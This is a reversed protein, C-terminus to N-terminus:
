GLDADRGGAIALEAAVTQNWAQLRTLVDNLRVVETAAQEKSARVQDRAAQVSNTIENMQADLHREVGRGVEDIARDVQAALSPAVDDAIKAIHDRLQGVAGDRMLSVVLGTVWDVVVKKVPALVRELQKSFALRGILATLFGGPLVVDMLFVAAIDVVMDILAGGPVSPDEIHFQELAVKVSTLSQEYDKTVAAIRPSVADRVVQELERRIAAEIKASMSEAGRQDKRQTADDFFAGARDAVRDVAQRAWRDVDQRLRERERRLEAQAIRLQEHVADRAAVLQTLQLEIDPASQGLADRKKAIVAHAEQGIQLLGKLGQARRLPGARDYVNKQLIVGVADVGVFSDANGVAVCAIQADSFGAIRSLSQRTHAVKRDVDGPVPLLDRRTLVVLVRASVQKPVHDRLFALASETIGQVADVVLVVADARPLYGYTVASHAQELSGVGPTDVLVVSAPWPAAAIHVRLIAGDDGIGQRQLERCRDESIEHPQEEGGVQPRPLQEFRTVSSALAETITASCPLSDVEFPGSPGAIANLLSSKGAKFEGVFAVRIKTRDAIEQLRRVRLALWEDGIEDAILRRLDSAKREIDTDGAGAM